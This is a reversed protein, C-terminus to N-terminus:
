AGPLKEGDIAEVTNRRDLDFTGFGKDALRKRSGIAGERDGRDRGRSIAVRCRNGDTVAIYQGVVGRMGIRTTM